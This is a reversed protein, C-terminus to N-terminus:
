LVRVCGQVQYLLAEDFGYLQLALKALSSAAKPAPEVPTSSAGAAAEAGSAESMVHEGGEAARAPATSAAEGTRLDAADPLAYFWHEVWDPHVHAILEILALSVDHVSRADRLMRAWAARELGAVADSDLARFMLLMDGKVKCLAASVRVEAAAESRDCKRIGYLQACCTLAACAVAACAV